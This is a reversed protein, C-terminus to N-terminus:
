YTWQPFKANKKQINIILTTPSLNDYAIVYASDSMKLNLIIIPAEQVVTLQLVCFFVGFAYIFLLTTGMRANTLRSVM